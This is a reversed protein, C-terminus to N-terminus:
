GSFFADYPMSTQVSISIALSLTHTDLAVAGMQQDKALIRNIQRKIVERMMMLNRRFVGQTGHNHVKLKSKIGPHLKLLEEPIHLPHPWPIVTSNPHVCEVTHDIVM